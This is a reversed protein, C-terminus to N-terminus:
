STHFIQQLLFSPPHDYIALSFRIQAATVMGDEFGTLAPLNM